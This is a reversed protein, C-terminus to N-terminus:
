YLKADIEKAVERALNTLYEGDYGTIFLKGHRDKGMRLLGSTSQLYCIGSDPTINPIKKKAEEIIKRINETM